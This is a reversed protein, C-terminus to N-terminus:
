RTSFHNEYYKKKIFMGKRKIKTIKINEENKICSKNYLRIYKLVSNEHSNVCTSKEFVILIKVNFTRM